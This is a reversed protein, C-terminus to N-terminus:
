ASKATAAGAAATGAALNSWYVTALAAVVFRLTSGARIELIAGGIPIM